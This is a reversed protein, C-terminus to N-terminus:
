WNHNSPCLDKRLDSPKEYMFGERYPESAPNASGDSLQGYIVEGTTPEMYIVKGEADFIYLWAHDCQDFDEGALHKNGIVIISKINQTLLINWLDVAMDNCDTEGEIFTHTEKHEKGINELTNRLKYSMGEWATSRFKPNGWVEDPDLANASSPTLQNELRAVESNLYSIQSKLSDNESQLRSIQEVTMGHCATRLNEYQHQLADYENKCTRYYSTLANYNTKFLEFETSINNYEQQLINLETQRDDLDSELRTINSNLSQLEGEQIAVQQDREALDSELARSHAAEVAFGIGFGIGVACLLLIITLKFSGRKQM